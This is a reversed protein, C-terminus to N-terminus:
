VNVFSFFDNGCLLLTGFYLESSLFNSMVARGMSERILPTLIEMLCFTLAIPWIMPPGNRGDIFEFRNLFRDFFSM